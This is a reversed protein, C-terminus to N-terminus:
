VPITGGYCAVLLLSRAIRVNVFSEAKVSLLDESGEGFVRACFWVRRAFLGWQNDVSVLSSSTFQLLCLFCPRLFLTYPIFHLWVKLSLRAMVVSCYLSFLPGFPPNHPGWGRLHEVVKWGQGVRGLDPLDVLLTSNNLYNKTKPFFLHVSSFLDIAVLSAENWEMAILSTSSIILSTKYHGQLCRM